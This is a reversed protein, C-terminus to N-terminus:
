QKGDYFEKTGGLGGDAAGDAGGADGGSGGGGGAGDSGDISAVHMSQGMPQAESGEGQPAGSFYPMTTDIPDIGLEMAMQQQRRMKQMHAFYRKKVQSLKNNLGERELKLDSVQQRHMNLEANMAKLQKQKEALNEQYISLQEAVEPGPQRALIAKLEVYLKEKQQIMLDKEAVEETRRILQKQLTHTRTIMNYTTPDSGELKRWRHVNM